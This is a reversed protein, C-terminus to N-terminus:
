GAGGTAATAESALGIGVLGALLCLTMVPGPVPTMLRRM